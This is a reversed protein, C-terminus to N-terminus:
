KVSDTFIIPSERSQELIKSQLSVFLINDNGTKDSLIMISDRHTHGYFQGAIVNSYKRFIDVLKENYYERMATTSMSYPLYGVPIHAIIYVQPFFCLSQHFDEQMNTIVLHCKSM